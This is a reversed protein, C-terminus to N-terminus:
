VSATIRWDPGLARIDTIDLALRDAFRELGPVRVLPRGRDGLLVPALYLLMEDVLGAGLLAGALTAGAEVLVDNIQEGALVAMVADLDLGGPAAPIQRLEAGRAQLAQWRAGTPAATLVLTSGPQALLAADVPMRLGSDLVVRLPQRWAGPLRVTLAPNDALVTASGVLVAGSEARLRHVDARAAPGTIWRSMGDAGATRGDVSAALKLRVRPRGRRMRSVFGPNLAECEAALLGNDVQIGAARLAKIGKGAVRPNPDAMGVVVRSIGAGILADVCPPTRGHHCCPELTVYATAGRSDGADALAEVEAHPGGARGHWGAGIVAAGRVLVCGVRPNPATGYWGRRALALARAM